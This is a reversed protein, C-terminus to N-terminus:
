GISYGLFLSGLIGGGSPGGFTMGIFTAVDVDFGVFLGEWVYFMSRHEISAFVTGPGILNGGIEIGFSWVYINGRCACQVGVEGSLLGLEVNDPAGDHSLWLHTYIASVSVGGFAFALEGRFLPGHYLGDRHAIGMDSFGNGSQRWTHFLASYGAGVQLEFRPTSPDFVPTEACEAEAEEGVGEGAPPAHHDTPSATGAAGESEATSTAPAPDNAPAPDSAAAADGSPATDTPATDSTAAPAGTTTGAPENQAAAPCALATLVIALLASRLRTNM